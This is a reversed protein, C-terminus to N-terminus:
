KRNASTESDDGIGPRPAGLQPPHHWDWHMLSWLMVRDGQTSKPTSIRFPRCSKKQSKWLALTSVHSCSKIWTHSWFAHWLGSQVLANRLARACTQHHIQHAATPPLQWSHALCKFWVSQSLDQSVPFPDKSHFIQSKSFFFTRIIISDTAVKQYFKSVKVANTAYSHWPELKVRVLSTGNQHHDHSLLKFPWRALLLEDRSSGGPMPMTSM